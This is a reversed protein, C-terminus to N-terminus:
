TLAQQRPPELDDQRLTGTSLAPELEVHRLIEVGYCHSLRRLRAHYPGCWFAHGLQPRSLALKKLREALMPESAPVGYNREKIPPNGEIGFRVQHRGTMMGARSPYCMSCTVYGDTFRTGNKAISDIHPTPIETCGQFGLEGYGLDDAYLNLINPKKNKSCLLGM